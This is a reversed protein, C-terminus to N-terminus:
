DSFQAVCNTTEFTFKPRHDLPVMFCIHMTLKHSMIIPLWTGYRFKVDLKVGINYPGKNKNGEKLLEDSLEAAGVSLSSKGQFVPNLVLRSKHPVSFPTLTKTDFRQGNYYAGVEFRDFYIPSNYLKYSNRVAIALALKYQLTTNKSGFDFQTLSVNEVCSNAKGGSKSIMVLVFIGISIIVVCTITFIKSFRFDRGTGSTDPKEEQQQEPEDAM